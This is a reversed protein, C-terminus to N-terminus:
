IYICIYVHIYLYVYVYMHLYVHTCKYMNHMYVCAYVSMDLDIMYVIVQVPMERKGRKSDKKSQRERVDRANESEEDRVREREGRGM